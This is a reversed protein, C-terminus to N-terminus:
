SFRPARFSKLRVGLRGWIYKSGAKPLCLRSASSQKKKSCQAGLHTLLTLIGRPRIAGPMFRVPAADDLIEGGRLLIGRNSVGPLLGTHGREGNRHLCRCYLCSYFQADKVKESGRM